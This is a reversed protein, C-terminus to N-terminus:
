EDNKEEAGEENGKTSEQATKYILKEIPKEMKNRRLTQYAKSMPLAIVTTYLGSARSRLVDTTGTSSRIESLVEGLNDKDRELEVAFEEESVKGEEKLKQLSEIASVAESLRVNLEEVKTNQEQPFARKIYQFLFAAQISISIFAVGLVMSNITNIDGATILITPVVSFALAISLAGRMGGLMAVNRWNFPIKEGIKDFLSLIPYVTAFRAVLVAFFAVLIIPFFTSLFQLPNNQEIQYSAVELGIILFAISNALFAALEWFLKVAERTSPAIVTRVTLNGYYLGAVAVAVLGSFGFASAFAYSGYVVSISLLIMSMRDNIISSLIEALFTVFLGILLGGGFVLGFNEIAAVYSLQGQLQIYTVVISFVVVGTADNFAAETDMLTALKSPVKARRFVELVTAADTPAIIAGFLFSTAPSLGGVKWLVIGAVITAIVVGITALVISPRIVSKLDSSRTHMMAQFILPPVVLGVFLNGNGGLILQNLQTAISQGGFLGFLGPELASLTVLGIGVFVLVLTYPLRAKLSLMSAIVLMALFVSIILEVSPM